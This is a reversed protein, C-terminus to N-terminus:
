CRPGNTHCPIRFEDDPFRIVGAAAAPRQRGRVREVAGDRGGGAGAVAPSRRLGAPDRGRGPDPRRQLRLGLVPEPPHQADGGAVPRARHRGRRSRGVDAGRRREGGGRRHRHGAGARVEAEALAPADNIGDGVFAVAGHAARLDRLAALKGEPLVEARVIEIGLRRAVGEATRRADGTVLAVALGHRRLGAVAEAAGPKVPDAVAWLAALRGDVAVYVPSAGAEALRVAQPALDTTAIGHRAMLREAGILSPAAAPRGPSASARCRRWPRSWRRALGRAEAAAVVARGLPHESRAELAAALALVADPDQGPVPILDTLAPRGETLTGTKDFAVVRIGDLAQLAAGNRFLVGREAARGTGVMISTPTALGMACPCAIILVAIANVIALGLSPGPALVLWALFTAASLAM